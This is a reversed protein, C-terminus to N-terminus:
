SGARWEAVVSFRIPKGAAETQIQHNVLRVHRLVDSQGLQVVYDLLGDFDRSEGNIVVQGKEVDPQVEIVGIGEAHLRTADELAHFFEDWPVSLRRLVAKAEKVEAQLALADGAAQKKGQANRSMFSRLTEIRGGYQEISQVLEVYYTGVSVLASLGAALWLLGRGSVSPRGARYDLM